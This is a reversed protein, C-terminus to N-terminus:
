ILKLTDLGDSHCLSIFAFYFCCVFRLSLFFYTCRDRISLRFYIKHFFSIKNNTSLDTIQQPLSEGRGFITKWWNPKEPRLSSLVLKRSWAFPIEVVIAPNIKPPKISPFRFIKIFQSISFKFDLSNKSDNWFSKRSFENNLAFSNVSSGDGSLSTTDWRLLEFLDFVRVLQLCCIEGCWDLWLTLLKKLQYRRRVTHCKNTRDLARLVFYILVVIAKNHKANKEEREQRTWLDLLLNLTWRQQRGSFSRVGDDSACKPSIFKNTTTCLAAACSSFTRREGNDGGRAPSRKKQRISRARAGNAECLNECKRTCLASPTLLLM